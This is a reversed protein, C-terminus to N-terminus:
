PNYYKILRKDDHNDFKPDGRTYKIKGKTGLSTM